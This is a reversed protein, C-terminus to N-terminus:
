MWMPSPMSKRSRKQFSLKTHARQAMDNYRSLLFDKNTDEHMFVRCYEEYAVFFTIAEHYLFNISPTNALYKLEDPPCLVELIYSGSDDFRIHENEILYNDYLVKGDQGNKYVRKVAIVDETIEEWEFAKAEVEVFDKKCATSFKTALDLMAKNIYLLMYDDPIDSFGTHLLAYKKMQQGNM